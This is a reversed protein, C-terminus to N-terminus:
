AAAAKSGPLSINPGMKNSTPHSGSYTQIRYRLASSFDHNYPATAGSGM